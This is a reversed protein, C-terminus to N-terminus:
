GVYLIRGCSGCQVVGGAKARQWESMSLTLRCGRCMGQEVKVVAQLKRAKLGEYLKLDASPISKTLSERVQKLDNIQANIDAESETLIKQEQRWDVELKKVQKRQTKIDGQTEEVEGMVNLLDDEKQKLSSQMTGIEHELGVLEKPNKLKGSYLKERIQDIMSRLDDVGWEMEHQRKQLHALNDEKRKLEAMASTLVTNETLRGQVDELNRQKNQADIDIQQLQFLKKAVSV